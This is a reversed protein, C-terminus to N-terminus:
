MLFSISSLQQQALHITIEHM